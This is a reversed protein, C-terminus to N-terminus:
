NRAHRPAGHIIVFECHEDLVARAFLEAADVHGLWSQMAEPGVQGDTLLQIWLRACVLRTTLFLGAM